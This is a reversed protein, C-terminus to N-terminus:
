RPSASEIGGGGDLNEHYTLISPLYSRLVELVKDLLLRVDEMLSEPFLGAFFTQSLPTKAVDHWAMKPLFSLHEFEFVVLIYWNQLM